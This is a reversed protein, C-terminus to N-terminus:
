RDDAEATEAAGGENQDGPIPPVTQPNM